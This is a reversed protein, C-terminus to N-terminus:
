EKGGDADAKSTAVPWDCSPCKPYPLKVDWQHSHSCWYHQTRRNSDHYHRVGNEDWWPLFGMLTEMVPGEFVKSILGQEKCTQCKM